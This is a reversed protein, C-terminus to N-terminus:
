TYIISILIYEADCNGYGSEYSFGIKGGTNEVNRETKGPYYM